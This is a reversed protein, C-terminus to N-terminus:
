ERKQEKEAASCTEDGGHTTPPLQSDSWYVSIRGWAQPWDALDLTLGCRLWGGGMKLWNINVKRRFAKMLSQQVPIAAPWSLQFPWSNLHKWQKLKPMKAKGGGPMTKRVMCRAWTRSFEEEWTERSALVRHQFLWCWNASMPQRTFYTAYLSYLAWWLMLQLPIESHLTFLFVQSTWM